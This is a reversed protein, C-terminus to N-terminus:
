WSAYATGDHGKGTAGSRVEMVAGTRQGTPPVLVWSDFRDTLPDLPAQRLYRMQVLEQLDAPYRARDAYFKDIADRLSALNQRLVAERARDVHESYRPATIALLLGIVSMVVLMEILTFAKQGAHRHTCVVM